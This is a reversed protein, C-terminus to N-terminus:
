SRLIPLVVVEAVTQWFADSPEDTGSDDCATVVVLRADPVVLIQQGYSGSAMVYPHSEVEGLWWLYGYGQSQEPPAQEKTLQNTTSERVWAASVVQRGRWRGEDLYLQGIKLMDPATLKLLCCGSHTGEQDTGWGFGPGRLGAEVDPGQWAPRTDIGLPDFLKERAYELLPRGVARRLVAGVLHASTNSYTFAAGPEAVLADRTIAGVPDGTTTDVMAQGGQIGATMTLLQRLTISRVEETMEEAREPLLQALTQDPRLRGEDVAIGVLISVVSKTVSWVHGRDTPRRDQYYSMVTEGDVSVLVARIAQLSWDGETVQQELQQRMGAYDPARVASPSISSTSSTPPAAPPPSPRTCATPLCAVLVVAAVVLRRSRERYGPM